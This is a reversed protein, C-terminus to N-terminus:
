SPKTLKKLIKESVILTSEKKEPYETWECLSKLSPITCIHVKNDMVTRIHVNRVKCKSPKAVKAEDFLFEEAQCLLTHPLHYRM